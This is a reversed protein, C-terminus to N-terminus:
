SKEFPNSSRDNGVSFSDESMWWDDGCNKSSSPEAEKTEERNQAAAWRQSIDEALATRKDMPEKIKGEVAVFQDNLYEDIEEEHEIMVGSERLVEMLSPSELDQVDRSALIKNDLLYKAEMIGKEKLEDDSLFFMANMCVPLHYFGQALLLHQGKNIIGFKSKNLLDNAINNYYSADTLGQKVMLFAGTDVMPIQVSKTGYIALRKLHNSMKKNNEAFLLKYSANSIIDELGDLGYNDHINKLNDTLLLFSMKADLGHTLGERLLNFKPLIEFDDMVFMLPLEVMNQYNELNAGIVMDVFIRTLLSSQRNDAVLYVTSVKLENTLSDKYGRVEAFSFDSMSTRERVSSKRFASLPELMMAFIIKRQKRTLYFLHQMIQKARPHYGFFEAEEIFSNLMKKWRGMELKEDDNDITYYREILCDNLMAFCFEKGPWQGPVNDWSGVPLYNDINLTGDRLHGIAPQAYKDPMLAYYSLLIDKDENRLKGNDLLESLFYDNAYAQEIKSIFFQLLGEVAISSLKEWYNDSQNSIIYRSILNLYHDRQVGKPPLNCSSFPNWRPWFEGQESNDLFNWNFYFVKGLTSRYGSTFKVLTGKSDVAVISADDSELISPIAVTTTKGLGSNGWGFVSLSKSLRLTYNQVTGLAMLCGSILGMNEVDEFKAFRNNLKYWLKFSYPSKVFFWILISSFLLPPILPVFASLGLKGYRFSLAFVQGWEAYAEFVYWPDKKLTGFFEVIVRVSSDDVGLHLFHAAVLCLISAVYLLVLAMLVLVAGWLFMKRSSKTTEIYPKDKM